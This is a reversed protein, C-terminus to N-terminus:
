FFILPVGFAIIWQLYLKTKSKPKAEIKPSSPPKQTTSMNDEKNRFLELFM